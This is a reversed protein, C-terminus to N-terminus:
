SAYSDFEAGERIFRTLMAWQRTGPAQQRNLERARRRYGELVQREAIGARLCALGSRLGYQSKYM